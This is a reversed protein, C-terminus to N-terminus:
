KVVKRTHKTKRDNQNVTRPNITKVLGTMAVIVGAIGGMLLSSLIATALIIETPSNGDRIWASPNEIAPSNSILQATKTSTSAVIHLNDNFGRELGRGQWSLPKLEQEGERGPFPNPTLNSLVNYVADTTLHYHNM